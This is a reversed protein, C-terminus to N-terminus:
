IYEWGWPIYVCDVRGINTLTGDDLVAAAVQVSPEHAICNDYALEINALGIDVDWGTDDFGHEILGIDILGIDFQDVRGTHPPDVDADLEFLIELEICVWFVGATVFM